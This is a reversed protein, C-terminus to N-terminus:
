CVQWFESKQVAPYLRKGFNVFRSVQPKLLRPDYLFIVKLRFLGLYLRSLLKTISVRM